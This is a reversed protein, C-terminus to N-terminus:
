SALVVATSDDNRMTGNGRAENVTDHFASPSRPLTTETRLLWAAVADTALVFVDGAAWTGSVAHATPVPRAPHSSLLDPRHDFADPDDMPWASLVNGGRRHMLLCDGVSLAAFTGDKRLELALLTAYAGDQAKEQVYWPASALKWRVRQKWVDQWTLLEGEANLVHDLPRATTVIGGALIRAWLGSYVTETAGDAVAARVPERLPAVVAADENEEPAHGSKSVSM